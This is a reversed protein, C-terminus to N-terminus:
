LSVFFNCCYKRRQVVGSLSIDSGLLSLISRLSVLMNNAPFHFYNISGSPPNLVSQDERDYLLDQMAIRYCPYQDHFRSDMIDRVPRGNKFRILYANTDVDPNYDGARTKEEVEKQTVGNLAFHMTRLERVSKIGDQFEKTNRWRELSNTLHQILHRGEDFDNTLASRLYQIRRLRSEIQKIQEPNLSCLYEERQFFQECGMYHLLYDRPKHREASLCSPIIDHDEMRLLHEAIDNSM